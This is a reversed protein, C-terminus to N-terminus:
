GSRERYTRGSTSASPPASTFWGWTEVCAKQKSEACCRFRSRGPGPAEVGPRQVLWQQLRLPLDPRPAAWARVERGYRGTDGKAKHDIPLVAVRYREALPLVISTLSGGVEGNDNAPIDAIALAAGLSDVVVVGLYRIEAALVGADRAIIRQTPAGADRASSAPWPV